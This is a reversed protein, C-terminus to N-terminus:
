TINPLPYKLCYTVFRGVFHHDEAEQELLKVCEPKERKPSKPLTNESENEGDLPESLIDKLEEKQLKEEVQVYDNCTHRVSINNMIIILFCYEDTRRFINQIGDYIKNLKQGYNNKKIVIVFSM